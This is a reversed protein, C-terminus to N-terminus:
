SQTSTSWVNGTKKFYWTCRHYWFQYVAFPAAWHDLSLFIIECFIEWRNAGLVYVREGFEIRSPGPWVDEFWAKSNCLFLAHYDYCSMPISKRLSRIRLSADFSALFSFHEVNPACLLCMYTWKGNRLAMSSSYMFWPYKLRPFM